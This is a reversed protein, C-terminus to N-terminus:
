GLMATLVLSDDCRGDPIAVQPRRSGCRLLQVVESLSDAGVAIWVNDNFFLSQHLFQSAEHPVLM